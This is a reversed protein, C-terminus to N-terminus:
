KRVLGFDCQSERETLLKATPKIADAPAQARLDIERTVAVPPLAYVVNIAKPKGNYVGEDFSVWKGELPEGNNFDRVHFFIENQKDPLLIFGFQRTPWFKRIIGHRM